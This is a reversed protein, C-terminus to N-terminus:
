MFRCLNAGFDFTRLSHSKPSFGALVFRSFGTLVLFLNQLRNSIRASLGLMEALTIRGNQAVTRYRYIAIHLACAM